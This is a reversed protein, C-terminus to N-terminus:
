KIELAKSVDKLWTNGDYRRTVAINTVLVSNADLTSGSPMDPNSFTSVASLVYPEGDVAGLYLMVHGPFYLISGPLLDNIVEKKPDDETNEFDYVYYGNKGLLQVASTRPLEFGFCLYIERIIGSCDNSHHMGGWGYRDGMLKFAQTLVNKTTYPLYGPSVDESASILAYKEELYGDEGRVKLKVVYNNYTSRGNIEDPAESAKVLPIKTGMPLLLGSIRPDSQVDPLRIERGTVILFDDENMYDLWEDRDHCLAVNEKEIWGCFGYTIVYYWQGSVDEHIIAVPIYPMAEAMLFEDFFEDDPSSGVFRSDPYARLDERKTFYGYKLNVTEDILDLGQKDRAEKWFAIDTQKGECYYNGPNKPIETCDTLARVLEGDMTDTLSLLSFPEYDNLSIKSQCRENSEKIEDYTMIIEGSHNKSEYLDIWYDAYQMDVTTGPVIRVYDSEITGQPREYTYSSIENEPETETIVAIEEESISISLPAKPTEEALFLGCGSLTLSLAPILFSCYLPKKM